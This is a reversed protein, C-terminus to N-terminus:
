DQREGTALGCHGVMRKRGMARGLPNIMCDMCTCCCQGIDYGWPTCSAIVSSVCAVGMVM